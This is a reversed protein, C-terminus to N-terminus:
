RSNTTGGCPSPVLTGRRRPDAPKLHLKFFAKIAERIYGFRKPINKIIKTKDYPTLNYFLMEPAKGNPVRGTNDSFIIHKLVQKWAGRSPGAALRIVWQIAYSDIHINWDMNNMGGKEPPGIATRKNLFRRFRQHNKLIDPEKAWWLTDADRQMIVRLKKSMPITYLWYRISGFYMSQVILNRGHYGCRYLASWKKAKDRITAIKQEYFRDYDVENGIPNGLSIAWEGEPIWSTDGPMKITRYKGLALGQRKSINEKMGTAYGWKRVTRLAHYYSKKNGLLLTSDDAFRSILSTTDGVQIGTINDNDELALKLAEAVLLFLLPSLPCGQAVGSQIRFWHSYYGNVYMRRKPANDENYMMSVWSVFNEGFGVARLAKRLFKFSVRDFAKEMDLFIMMGKRDLPEENIYAEILQLLMTADQINERPVFGKQSEDVFQHVVTKMRNALIKTYIKYDANLLTIPRYNRPDKRDKKKYLVSIDGEMMSKPLQKRRGAERLVATLKDAFTNAMYKYLANPLRDPGASKGVTLGEMVERVERKTIPKELEKRSKLLIPKRKLLDLAHNLEKNKTIKKSYIQQYCDKFSECVQAANETTGHVVPDAGETWTAQIVENVWGQKARNKYPTFFHKTCMDSRSHDAHARAASIMSTQEPYRLQIIKAKLRTIASMKKADPQISMLKTLAGINAELIKIEANRIKRATATEKLLFDRIM